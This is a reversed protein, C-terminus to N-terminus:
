EALREVVRVGDYRVVGGLDLYVEAEGDAVYLGPRASLSLWGAVHYGTEVEVRHALDYAQAALEDSEAQATTFLSAGAKRGVIEYLLSLRVAGAELGVDAIGFVTGPGYPATLPLAFGNGETRLRYIARSLGFEAPYGGWLYHTYGLDIGAAWVLGDGFRSYRSGLTAAPITPTPTDGIGVGTTRIDDFSLQGYLELGPALPVTADLFMSMNRPIINANHWSFVPFFDSLNFNNMERSVITHAGVGLRWAPFRYEFYHTNFYIQNRDFTYVEREPEPLVVDERAEFNDISAVHHHMRIPGLDLTIRLADLFPVDDALVISSRSAPGLEVPQRGFTIEAFRLPVHLYGAYVNNFEYPVPDGSRPPAVNSPEEIRYDRIALVRTYLIPGGDLGGSIGLDLLPAERRLKETIDERLYSSELYAEPRAAIDVGTRIASPDYDLAEIYEDVRRALAASSDVATATHLDLAAERLWSRSVPLSATPFPEAAARYLRTLKRVPEDDSGYLRDWGWGVGSIVTLLVLFCAARRLPRLRARREMMM